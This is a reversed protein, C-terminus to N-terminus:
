LISRPNRRTDESRGGRDWQRYVSRLVVGLPSVPRRLRVHKAFRDISSFDLFRIVIQGGFGWGRRVSPGALFSSLCSQLPVGNRCRFYWPHSACPTQVHAVLLRWSSLTERPVFGEICIENWLVVACSCLFRRGLDKQGDGWRGAWIEYVFSKLYCCPQRWAM